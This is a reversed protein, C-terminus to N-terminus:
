NRELPLYLNGQGNGVGVRQKVGVQQLLRLPCDEEGVGGGATATFELAASARSGVQKCKNGLKAM